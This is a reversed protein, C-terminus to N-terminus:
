STQERAPEPADMMFRKFPANRDFLYRYTVHTKVHEGGVAEYLKRMKPNFDGVWSLEIEKYWPKHKMVEDLKKFIASEIGSNQFSPVVGAVMARIRNVKHTKKYYVFRALNLINIKGKFPKIIQNVDPFMIFFSVPRDGHYAFWILEEDIIPKANELTKRVENTDLPTFNQKFHSWATNYIEALDNIFKEKEKFTFHKFHFGPKKSVWDAIKWFREPFKKELDLHYSFQKFYVRFGYNEFLNKYYAHNYPMGYGPHTFGEVLLGWHSDNEGFNVPGDMAEMGRTQLWERAKNFLMNAAEQDNICEFFGIGGTPQDNEMAKMINYFAAIRGILNNKGDVLIWRCADGKKFSINKSPDFKAEIEVDLPCVWTQDDKYINRAVQYFAKVQKKSRVEILRM